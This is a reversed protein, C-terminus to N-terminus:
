PRIGIAHQGFRICGPKKYKVHEGVSYQELTKGSPATTPVRHCCRDFVALAVCRAQNLALPDTRLHAIGNRERELQYTLAIVQAVLLTYCAIPFAGARCPLNIDLHHELMLQALPVTLYLSAEVAMALVNPAYVNIGLPSQPM